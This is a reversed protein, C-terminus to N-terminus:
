TRPTAARAPMPKPFNGISLHPLAAGQLLLSRERNSTVDDDATIILAKYGAAKARHLLERAFGPDRPLYLQFWKPGDSAAAITELSLQSVSSACYLTGAAAAGKVNPIDGQAHVSAQYGM